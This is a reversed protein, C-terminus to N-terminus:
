PNHLEPWCTNFEPEPYVESYLGPDTQKNLEYQEPHNTFAPGTELYLLPMRESRGMAHAPQEPMKSLLLRSENTQSSYQFSKYLLYSAYEDYGGFEM